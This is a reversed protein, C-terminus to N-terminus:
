IKCSGHMKQMCNVRLRLPQCCFKSLSVGPGVCSILWDRSPACRLMSCQRTCCCWIIVIDLRQRDDAAGPVPRWPIPRSRSHCWVVRGVWAGELVCGRRPCSRGPQRQFRAGRRRWAQSTHSAPAFAKLAHICSGQSGLMPGTARSPSTDAFLLTHGFPQCFANSGCVVSSESHLHFVHRGLVFCGFHRM